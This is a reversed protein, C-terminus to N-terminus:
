QLLMNAPTLPWNRYLSCTIWFAAARLHSSNAPSSFSSCSFASNCSHPRVNRQRWYIRSVAKNNSYISYNNTM